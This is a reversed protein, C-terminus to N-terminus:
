TVEELCFIAIGFRLLNVPLDELAPVLSETHIM